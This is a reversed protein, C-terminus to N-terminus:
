TWPKDNIFERLHAPGTDRGGTPPDVGFKKPPKQPPNLPPSINYFIEFFDDSASNGSVKGRGSYIALPKDSLWSELSM